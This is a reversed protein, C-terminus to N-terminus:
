KDIIAVYDLVINFLFLGLWGESRLPLPTRGPPVVGWHTSLRGKYLSAGRIIAIYDFVINISIFWTVGWKEITAADERTACGGLTYVSAGEGVMAPTNPMCRVVRCGPPLWGEMSPLPVGIYPCDYTPAILISILVLFKSVRRYSFLLKPFQPISNSFFYSYDKIILACNM